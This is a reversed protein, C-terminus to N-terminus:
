SIVFIYDNFKTNVIPLTESGNRANLQKQYLIFNVLATIRFSHNM